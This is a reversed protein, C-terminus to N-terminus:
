REVKEQSLDKRWREQEMIGIKSKFLVRQEPREESHAYEKRMEFCINFVHQLKSRRRQKKFVRIEDTLLVALEDDNIKSACKQKLKKIFGLMKQNRARISDKSDISALRPEYNILDILLKDGITAFAKTAHQRACNEDLCKGTFDYPCLALMPNIHHSFTSSSISKKEKM